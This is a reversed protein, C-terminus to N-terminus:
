LLSGKTVFIPTPFTILPHSSPKHSERMNGQGINLSGNPTGFSDSPSFAMKVAVESYTLPGKVLFVDRDSMMEPRRDARIEM